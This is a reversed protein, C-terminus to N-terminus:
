SIEKLVEELLESIKVVESIKVREPTDRGTHVYFADRFSSFHLTVSDYGAAGFPIHDVGAGLPIWGSRVPFGKREAIKKIVEKLRSSTERPPIGVKSTVVLNKGGGVGDINIILFDRSLTRGHRKLFEFAGCLGMEEAGTFLFLANEDKMRRGLILLCLVGSANDIGGPSRNFTFNLLLLITSLLQLSLFYRWLKGSLPLSFVSIVFILFMMMRLPLPLLQSKSDYHAIFLIGRDVPKRWALINASKKVKLIEYFSGMKGTWRTLSFLAIFSFFYFLLFGALSRACFFIFISFLSFFLLVLRPLIEAPFPSFAFEEVEVNFGWKRLYGIIVKKVREEGETGALRPVAIENLIVGLDEEM